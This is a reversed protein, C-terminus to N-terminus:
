STAPRWRVRFAANRRAVRALASHLAEVNTPKLFCYEFGANRAREGHSAEVLGTVAMLVLHELGPRSKLLYALEFGDIQPMILDILAVDPPWTATTRVAATASYAVRVDYNWRRILVALSEACDCDNDVVLVRSERTTPMPLIPGGIARKSGTPWDLTNSSSEM